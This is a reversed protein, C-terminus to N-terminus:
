WLVKVKRSMGIEKDKTILTANYRLAVSAIIRDHMEKIDSLEAFYLIDRPEISSIEFMDELRKYEKFFDLHSGARENLYYLEALTITSIIVKDGTELGNDIVARAKLSLKPSGTLYWFLTHTDLVYNKVM